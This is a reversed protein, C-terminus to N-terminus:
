GNNRWWEYLPPVDANSARILSWVKKADTTWIIEAADQFTGCAVQGANSTATSGQHWVTPSKTDGCNALVEEKISTKFMADLDDGNSFLIYKAEAPGNPDPSQGCTLSALQGTGIPQPTCDTLDYGKSLSGALADIDSQNGTDPDATAAATGAVAWGGMLAAVSAIRLASTFYSM